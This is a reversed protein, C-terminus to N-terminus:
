DWAHQAAPSITRAAAPPQTLPLAQGCVDRLALAAVRYSIMDLPNCCVAMLGSATASYPQRNGLADWANDRWVQSWSPRCRQPIPLGRTECFERVISRDLVRQERRRVNCVKQDHIRYQLLTQPLNALRGVESLRLWLDLDEAWECEARYGGIALVTDRRYIVSPHWISCAYHLTRDVIDAHDLPVAEKGLAKGAADIKEVQSGVAVCDPHEQLYTTQVAIRAPHAIDDADMRAVLPHRCESLGANLAAVIGQHSRRLLRVRGDGDAFKRIIAVTGDASGDDVIVLELHRHTQALVSQIAPSVYRAGNYVPMLVSVGAAATVM